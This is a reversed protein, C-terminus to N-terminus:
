HTKELKTWNDPALGDPGMYIRDGDQYVSDYATDVKLTGGDTTRYENREMIVDSWEDTWNRPEYDPSSQYEELWSGSEGMIYEYSQQMLGAHIVDDIASGYRLNVYLFEMTFSSNATVLEFMPRYSDYAERSDAVLLCEMPLNWFLSDLQVYNTSALTESATVMLFCEIYGDGLRYLNDVVTGEYGLATSAAGMNSQLKVQAAEDAMNVLSDAVEYREVLSAGGYGLRELEMEAAQEANRYFKNTMYLGYDIGEAVRAGNVTMDAFSQNSVLCIASRGDPSLLTVQAVGPSSTSVFSWNVSVQASWGDPVLVNAVPVGAYSLAQHTFYGAAGSAPANEFGPEAELVPEEEVVPAQAPTSAANDDVRKPRTIATAPCAAALMSLVMLLCLMRKM